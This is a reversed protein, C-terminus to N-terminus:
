DAPARDPSAGTEMGAGGRVPMSAKMGEWQHSHLLPHMEGRWGEFTKENETAGLTRTHICHSM